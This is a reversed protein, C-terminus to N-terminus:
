QILSQPHPGAIPLKVLRWTVRIIFVQTQSGSDYVNGLMLEAHITWHILLLELHEELMGSLKTSSGVQSQWSLSKPMIRVRVWDQNRVFYGCHATVWPGLKLLWILTTTIFYMHGPERRPSESTVPRPHLKICSCPADPHVHSTPSWQQLALVAFAQCM